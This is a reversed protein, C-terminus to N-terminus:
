LSLYKKVAKSDRTEPLYTGLTVGKILIHSAKVEEVQKGDASAEHKEVLKIIHYGYSTQVLDSTEGVKMGFVATEFEPVMVGRGFFGLDGGKDKTGPDESYEKALDEFSKEGKKVEALVKDAREKAPQQLDKDFEMASAVKDYLMNGKLVEEKFEPATLNYFEKIKAIAETEDTFTSVVEKQWFAEIEIDSVTLEYKKALKEVLTKSILQNYIDQRNQKETPLESAQINGTKVQQQYYYTLIRYDRDFDRYSILKGEVSAIPLSLFKAMGTLAPFRFPDRYFVVVSVIMLVLAVGIVGIGAGLAFKKYKQSAPADESVAPSTMEEDLLESVSKKEKQNLM